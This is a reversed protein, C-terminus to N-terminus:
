GLEGLCFTDVFLVVNVVCFGFVHICVVSTTCTQIVGQLFQNFAGNNSCVEQTRTNFYYNRQTAPDKLELWDQFWLLESCPVCSPYLIISRGGFDGVWWDARLRVWERIAAM